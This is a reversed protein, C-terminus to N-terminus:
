DFDRRGGGEKLEVPADLYLCWWVCGLGPQHHVSLYSASLKSHGKLGMVGAVDVSGKVSGDGAM